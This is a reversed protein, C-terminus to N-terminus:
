PLIDSVNFFEFSSIQDVASGWSSAGVGFHTPTLAFTENGNGYDTWSVGDPSLELSWTNTARWIMRQYLWGGLLALRRETIITSSINTFTGTRFSHIFGWNADFYTMAWICPSTSTVGNSFVLGAMGYNPVAMIRIATTVVVPYSIAGLDKMLGALDNAVQDKYKVSMVDAGETWVATGTPTVEVWAAAKVNDDFHDSAININTKDNVADIRRFSFDDAVVRHEIVSGTLHAVATTDDFGRTLTSFVNGTKVGVLIIESECRITFPAIPYGSASNVTLTTAVDTIGGNLFTTVATNSYYRTM